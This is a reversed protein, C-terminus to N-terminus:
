LMLYRYQLMPNRTGPYASAWDIIYLEGGSSLSMKLRLAATYYLKDGAFAALKGATLLM